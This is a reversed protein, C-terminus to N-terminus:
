GKLLWLFEEVKAKEDSDEISKYGHMGPITTNITSNTRIMSNLFAKKYEMDRQNVTFAIDKVWCGIACSTILDDNYKRMAQPRGAQWVFTKM